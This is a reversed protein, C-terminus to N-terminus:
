GPMVRESPDPEDTITQNALSPAGSNRPALPRRVPAAVLSVVMRTVPPEAM